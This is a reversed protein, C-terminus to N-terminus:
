LANSFASVTETRSEELNNSSGDSNDTIQVGRKKLKSRRNQFWIKVKCLLFLLQIFLPM